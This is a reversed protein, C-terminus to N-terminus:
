KGGLILKVIFVILALTLLGTVFGLMNFGLLNFNLLGTFASIPADVVAGLLGLFSYNNSNSVGADYGSSYGVDVGADYGSQYGLSQGYDSGADYGADYGIQYIKDDSFTTTFYYTREEFRFRTAFTSTSRLEFEFSIFEGGADYYTVTNYFNAPKIINVNTNQYSNYTVKVIDSTLQGSHFVRVNFGYGSTATSCFLTTSVSSATELNPVSDLTGSTAISSTLDADSYYGNVSARYRGDVRGFALNVSLFAQRHVGGNNNMFSCPVMINSGYFDFNDIVVDGFSAASVVVKNKNPTLCFLSLVLMPVLCFLISTNKFLTKKKTM